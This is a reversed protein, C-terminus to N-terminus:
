TLATSELARGCNADSYDTVPPSALDVGFHQKAIRHLGKTAAEMSKTHTLGVKPKDMGQLDLFAEAESTTAVAWRGENYSDPYCHAMLAAAESTEFYLRDGRIVLKGGDTAGSASAPEDQISFAQSLLVTAVRLEEANAALPECFSMHCRLRWNSNGIEQRELAKRAATAVVARAFESAGLRTIWADIEQRLGAYAAGIDDFTSM